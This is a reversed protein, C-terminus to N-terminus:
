FEVFQVLKVEAEVGEGRAFEVVLRQRLFGCLCRVEAGHGAWVEARHFDRFVDAFVGGLLANDFLFRQFSPNSSFDQSNV